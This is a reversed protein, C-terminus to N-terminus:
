NPGGPACPLRQPRASMPLTTLSSPMQSRWTTNGPMRLAWSGTGHGPQLSLVPFVLTLGPRSAQVVGDEVWPEDDGGVRGLASGADMGPWSEGNPERRPMTPLHSQSAGSVSEMITPGYLLLPHRPIFLSLSILLQFGYSNAPLHRENRHCLFLFFLISLCGPSHLSSLMHASTLVPWRLM